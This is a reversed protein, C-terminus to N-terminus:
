FFRTFTPKLHWLGFRLPAPSASGVFIKSKTHSFQMQLRHSLVFHKTSIPTSPRSFLYSYLKSFPHLPKTYHSLPMNNWLTGHNTVLANKLLRRYIRIIWFLEFAIIFFPKVKVKCLETYRYKTNKVAM